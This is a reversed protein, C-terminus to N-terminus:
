NLVLNIKEWLVNDFGSNALQEGGASEGSRVIVLNRSPVVYIKQDKAGLAAFMDNPANPIISGQHTLGDTGIFSQKGNLWWLYGYAKNIDQSSNTMDNFFSDNLLQTNHWKGNNLALLGFRAMSRTNTSFINLGLFTNWSGNMGIKDSIRSKIFPKFNMGTSESLMNQLQIFAGQHYAWASGADVNYNMCNQSTCSWAIFNSQDCVLGTTMSLHHKIKILNQKDVSLTSWDNGLIDSTKDNVSLLNEQQAIGIGFATLSKVASYWPWVANQTHGNFYKEVVIKGDKVIMFGKTNKLELFDYLEQLKEENWNLSSPMITAWDNSTISPFYNSQLPPNPEDDNCSFFFVLLLFPFFYRM